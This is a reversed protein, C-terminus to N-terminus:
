KTDGVVTVDGSAIWSVGFLDWIERLSPHTTLTWEGPYPDTDDMLWMAVLALRMGRHRDCEPKLAGGDYFERPTYVCDIPAYRHDIWNFALPKV